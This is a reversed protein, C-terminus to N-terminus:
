VVELAECSISKFTLKSNNFSYPLEYFDSPRGNVVHFLQSVIGAQTVKCDIVYSNPRM